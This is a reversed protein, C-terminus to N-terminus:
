YTSEDKEMLHYLPIEFIGSNYKKNRETAASTLDLTKKIDTNSKLYSDESNIMDKKDKSLKLSNLNLNYATQVRGDNKLEKKKYYFDSYNHPSFKTKLLNKTTSNDDTNFGTYGNFNNSSGNNTFCNYGNYRININHGKYGNYGNYGNYVSNRESNNKSNNKAKNTLETSSNKLKIETVIEKILKVENDQMIKTLKIKEKNKIERITASNITNNSKNLNKNPQNSNLNSNLNLNSQQNSNIQQNKIMQQSQNNKNSSEITKLIIENTINKSLNNSKTIHTDLFVKNKNPKKHKKFDSISTFINKCKYISSQGSQGTNLRESLQFNFNIEPEKLQTYQISDKIKNIDINFIRKDINRTYYNIITENFVPRKERIKKQNEFTPSVLYDQEEKFKQM